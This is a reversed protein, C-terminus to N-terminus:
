EEKYMEILEKILKFEKIFENLEKSSVDYKFKGDKYHSDVLTKINM